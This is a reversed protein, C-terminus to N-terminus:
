FQSLASLEVNTFVSVLTEYLGPQDQGRQIVSPSKLSRVKRGGGGYGVGVAGWVPM